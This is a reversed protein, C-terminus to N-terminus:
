FLQILSLIAVGFVLVFIIILGYLGVRYMTDSPLDDRM